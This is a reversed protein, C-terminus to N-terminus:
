QESGGQTNGEATITLTLATTYNGGHKESADETRIDLKVFGYSVLAKGLGDHEFVTTESESATGYSNSFSLTIVDGTEVSDNLHDESQVKKKWSTSWDLTESDTGDGGELSLISGTLEASIKEPSMIQWYVYSTGEGYLSFDDNGTDSKILALSSAETVQTSGSFSSTLEDNTFGIRKVWVTQGTPTLDFNMELDADAFCMLICIILLVALLFSKRM